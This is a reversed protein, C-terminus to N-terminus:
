HIILKKMASKRAGEVKILYVGSPICADVLINQQEYDQKFVLQGQISWMSVKVKEKESLIISINGSSPNPYLDFYSTSADEDIAFTTEEKAKRSSADSLIEFQFQQNTGGWYDYVQTIANNETGSVDLARGSARSLVSFYGDGLNNISWQQNTGGWYDYIQCPSYNDTGGVDLAKDSAVNLLKYYGDSTSEATWKQNDGGWYDYVQVISNNSTGGADLARGSNRAMIVYTDGSQVNNSTSPVAQYWRLYDVVFYSPFGSGDGDSCDTGNSLIVYMPQDPTTGYYEKELTGDIYWRLRNESWELGYTHWGTYDGSKTNTSWSGDYYAMTMYDKPNGRYEAIDFEPPWGDGLMWFAPWAGQHDPFQARIEIYGYTRWTKTWAWGSSYPFETGDSKTFTGYRSRLILTGDSLYTDEAPILNCSSQNESGWPTAGWGWMDDDLASANFDDEEVLEWTYGPSPSPQAFIHVQLALLMAAVFSLHIKLQM